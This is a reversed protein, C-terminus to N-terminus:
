EKVHPDIANMGLASRLDDMTLDKAVTGIRDDLSALYDKLEHETVRLFGGKHPALIHGKPPFPNLDEPMLDGCTMPRYPWPNDIM